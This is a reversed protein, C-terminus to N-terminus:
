DSFLGNIDILGLTKISFQIFTKLFMEILNNKYTEGCM